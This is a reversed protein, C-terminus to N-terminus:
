CLFMWTFRLWWTGVFCCLKRLCRLGLFSETPCNLSWRHVAPSWAHPEDRCLPLQPPRMPVQSGHLILALGLHLSILTSNSPSSDPNLFMDEQLNYFSFKFIDSFPFLGEMGWGALTPREPWAGYLVKAGRQVSAQLARPYLSTQNSKQMMVVWKLSWRGGSGRCTQGAQESWNERNTGKHCTINIPFREAALSLLHSSYIPNQKEPTAPGRPQPPWCSALEKQRRMCGHRALSGRTEMICCRPQALESYGFHWLCAWPPVLGATRKEPLFRRGLLGATVETQGSSTVQAGRAAPLTASHPNLNELRQPLHLRSLLPNPAPGLPMWWVSELAVDM